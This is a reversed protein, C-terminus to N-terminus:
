ISTNYGFVKTGPSRRGYALDNFMTTRCRQDYGLVLKASDSLEASFAGIQLEVQQAIDRADITKGDLWSEFQVVLQNGNGQASANRQTSGCAALMGVNIGHHGNPRARIPKLAFDKVEKANVEFTVGVQPANQKGVLKFASWKAAIKRHLSFALNRDTSV